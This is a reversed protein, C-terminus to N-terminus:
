RQQELWARRQAIRQKWDPALSEIHAIQALDEAAPRASALIAVFRRVSVADTM